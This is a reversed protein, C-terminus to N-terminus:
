SIQQREREIFIRRMKKIDTLREGEKIDLEARLRQVIVSELVSSSGGLVKKLFEAFLEPNEPTEEWRLNYRREMHKLLVGVAQKGFVEELVERLIKLFIRNYHAASNEGKSM